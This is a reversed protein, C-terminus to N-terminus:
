ESGAKIRYLTLGGDIPLKDIWESQNRHEFTQRKTVRNCLELSQAHQL